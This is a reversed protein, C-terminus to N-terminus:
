AGVGAARLKLRLTYMDSGRVLVTEGHSLKDIATIVEVCLSNQSTTRNGVMLENDQVRCSYVPVASGAIAM